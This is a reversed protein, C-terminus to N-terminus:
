VLTLQTQNKNGNTLKYDLQAHFGEFNRSDMENERQPNEDRNVNYCRWYVAGPM